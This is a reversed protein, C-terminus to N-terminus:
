RRMWHCKAVQEMPSLRSSSTSSLAYLYVETQLLMSAAAVGQQTSADITGDWLMGSKHRDSTAVSYTCHVANNKARVIRRNQRRRQKIVNPVQSMDLLLPVYLSLAMISRLVDVFSCYWIITGCQTTNTKVRCHAFHAVRKNVQGCINQSHVRSIPKREEHTLHRRRVIISYLQLAAGKKSSCYQQSYPLAILWLYM